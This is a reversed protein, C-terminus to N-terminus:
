FLQVFYSPFQLHLLLNFHNRRGGLISIKRNRLGKLHFECNSPFNSLLWFADFLFFIKLLPQSDSVDGVSGILIRSFDGCQKETKNYFLFKVAKDINSRKDTTKQYLISEFRFFMWRLFRASQRCPCSLMRISPSIIQFNIAVSSKCLDKPSKLKRSRFIM